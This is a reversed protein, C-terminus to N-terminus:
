SAKLFAPANLAPDYIREISYTVAEADFPEGNHFTIGSRLKFQWKTPSLVKWREALVPLYQMQENRHVLTEFLEM